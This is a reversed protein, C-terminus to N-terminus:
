GVEPLTAKGVYFHRDLRQYLDEVGEGENVNVQRPKSTLM